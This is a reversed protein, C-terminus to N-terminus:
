IYTHVYMTFISRITATALKQGLRKVAVSKGAGRARCLYVAADAVGYRCCLPKVRELAALLRRQRYRREVRHILGEASSQGPHPLCGLVLPQARGHAKPHKHPPLGGVHVHTGLQQASM